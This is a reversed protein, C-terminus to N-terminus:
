RRYLSSWLGHGQYNTKNTKHLEDELRKTQDKLLQIVISCNFWKIVRDNTDLPDCIAGILWPVELTKTTKQLNESLYPNHFFVGKCTAKIPYKKTYRRAAGNYEYVIEAAAVEEDVAVSSGNKCFLQIKSIYSKTFNLDRLKHPNDFSDLLSFVLPKRQHNLISEIYNYTESLQQKLNNNEADTQELKSSLTSIVSEYQKSTEELEHIKNNKEILIKEDIGMKSLDLEVLPILDKLELKYVDEEVNAESYICKFKGNPQKKILYQTDILSVGLEKDQNLKTKYICLYPIITEANIINHSPSQNVLRYLHDSNQNNAGCCIVVTSVSIDDLDDINFTDKMSEILKDFDKDSNYTIKENGDISIPVIEGNHYYGAQLYKKSILIFVNYESM